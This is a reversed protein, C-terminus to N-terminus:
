LFNISPKLVSITSAKSEGETLLAQTPFAKDRALFIEELLVMNSFGLLILGWTDFISDRNCM